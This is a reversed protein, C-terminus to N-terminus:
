SRAAHGARVVAGPVAARRCRRRGAPPRARRPRARVREQRHRERRRRARRPRPHGDARRPRDGRAALYTDLVASLRAMAEPTAARTRLLPVQARDAEISCKPPLTSATPSSCARFITASSAAAPGRDARADALSELYRIESEGFVLVRGDRLYADFGSLALGTKQTHPITIRRDLGEAGALLELDLSRSEALDRLVTAVTVGATQYPDSMSCPTAVAQLDACDRILGARDARPQRGQAPLSHQRTPTPTASSSSPRRGADVRLAADEVSMPKVAYARRASRRAPTPAARAPEAATASSAPARAGGSASAGVQGQAEAGAARDQRGGPAGLAALRQGRRARAAHSRRARARRDRDPPPIEGEDPHGARLDRQRQPAARTRRPAQDILQRLPPTIDVHRGTIDLRM